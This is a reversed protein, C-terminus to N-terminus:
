RIPTSLVDPHLGRALNDICWRSSRRAAAPSSSCPATPRTAARPSMSCACRGARPTATTAPSRRSSCARTARPDPPRLVHQQALLLQQRLLGEPRHRRPEHDDARPQFLPGLRHVGLPHVDRPREGDGVPALQRGPRLDSPPRRHRRREHPLPQGRLRQRRRLPRGRLSATSAFIIRGDPLYCADYNDVDRGMDPSVRRPKGRPQGTAPDIELEFVAYGKAQSTDPVETLEGADVHSTFLLRDADFHLDVDGIFKGPEPKYVTTIEGDCIPSM